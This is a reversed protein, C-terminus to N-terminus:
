STVTVQIQMGPSVSYQDISWISQKLWITTSVNLDIVTLKMPSEPGLYFWIISASKCTAPPSNTLSSAPHSFRQLPLPPWVQRLYTPGQVVSCSLSLLNPIYTYIIYLVHRDVANISLWMAVFTTVTGSSSPALTSGSVFPSAKM